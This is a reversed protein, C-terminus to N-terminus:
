LVSVATRITILIDQSFKNFLQDTSDEVLPQLQTPGVERFFDETKDIIM